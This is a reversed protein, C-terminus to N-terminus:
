SLAELLQRMTRKAVPHVMDPAIEACPELVFRRQTMRPHPVVLDPEDIVEDGYLLLDVDVERPGWREAGPRRGLHEEARQMAALLKRPPLHTDAIAAANRYDPQPPGGVPATTRVRSMAVVSLANEEELRDLAAVLNADRDGLNSGLGLLVRPSV